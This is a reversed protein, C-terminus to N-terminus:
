FGEGRLDLAEVPLDIWDGAPNGAGDLLYLIEGSEAQWFGVRLADRGPLAEEVGPV